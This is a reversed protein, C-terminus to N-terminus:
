LMIMKVIEIKCIMKYYQRSTHIKMVPWSGKLITSKLGYGEPQTKQELKYNVWCMRLPSDRECRRLIYDVGAVICLVYM